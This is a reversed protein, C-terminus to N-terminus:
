EEVVAVKSGCAHAVPESLFRNGANKYAAKGRIIADLESRQIGMIKAKFRHQDFVGAPTHVDLWIIHAVRDLFHAFAIDLDNRAPLDEPGALGYVSLISVTPPAVPFIKGVKLVAHRMSIARM